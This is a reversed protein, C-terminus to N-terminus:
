TVKKEREFYERSFVTRLFRMRYEERLAISCTEYGM